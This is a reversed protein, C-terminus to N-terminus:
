AVFPILFVHGTESRVIILNPTEDCSLGFKYMRCWEALLVDRVGGGSLVNVSVSTDQVFINTIVFNLVDCASAYQGYANSFSRAVQLKDTMCYAHSRINLATVSVGRSAFDNLVGQVAPQCANLDILALLATVDASLIRLLNAVHLHDMRLAQLVASRTEYAVFGAPDSKLLAPVDTVRSVLRRTRKQALHPCYVSVDARSRKVGAAAATAMTHAILLTVLAM